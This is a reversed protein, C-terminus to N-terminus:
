VDGCRKLRESSSNRTWLLLERPHPRGLKDHRNRIQRESARVHWPPGTGMRPVGHRGIGTALPHPSPGIGFSVCACSAETGM